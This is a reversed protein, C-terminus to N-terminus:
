PPPILKERELLLQVDHFAAKINGKPFRVQGLGAINSFEDCGEELMVIARSFGLRGQFLGVEHIVNMRAQVKGDAQQDEGTLVLFAIAAEGLMTELRSVTTVGASPIRNFEEWPLKLRDAIFDKLDKWEKSRGHGIFVKRAARAPVTGEEQRNLHNYARNALRALKETAEPVSQISSVDALVSIHPPTWIGQSMALADRSTIDVNPRVSAIADGQKYSRIKGTEKVLEDIFPDKQRRAATQLISLVDSRRQELIEQGEGALQRAKDLDPDGARNFIVAEVHEPKYEQFNSPNEGGFGDNFGWESSFHQGPPPQQLGTYYVRSQYGIWSRSWSKGLQKGSASLKDLMGQAGSEKWKKGFEDLEDFIQRLEATLNSMM